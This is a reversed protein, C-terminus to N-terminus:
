ATEKELHSSKRRLLIGTQAILAALALHLVGVGTEPLETSAGLVEGDDREYSVGEVYNPSEVGETVEEFNGAKDVAVVKFDFTGEMNWEFSWFFPDDGSTNEREGYLIWDSSGTERYYLYVTQVTLNPIDTSAGEISTPILSGGLSTFESEPPTNDVIIRVDPTRAWNGALDKGAAYLYYVGDELTYTTGGWKEANLSDLNWEFVTGNDFIYHYRKSSSSYPEGEARWWFNIYDCEENCTAKLHITGLHTSGDGPEEFTIQPATNDVIFSVVHQSDDGGLYPDGSLDRNGAADRAALRLLYEGDPWDTTVWTYLNRNNFGSSLYQTDSHLRLGFNMFDVGGSYISFNYHSLQYNEFVSGFIDMTGRVYSGQVLGEFFVIPATNDATFQWAPSWASCNGLQDCARVRWWYTAEPTGPAFGSSPHRSTPELYDRQYRIPVGPNIDPNELYLRYEYRVPGNPDSVDSWDVYLGSTSLVKGDNPFLLSPTPPATNDVTVVVWDYSIGPNGSKNGAADRAELKITYVGDAVTTTDWNFFFKDTFSSADNVVGLGAVTHNGSDQIVLWYHHPNADTVTGRIAVTGNLLPSTPSTIEVFPDTTDYTISCKDTWDSYKGSADFARVRVWYTTGNVAGGGHEYNTSRTSSYIRTGEPSYVEREYGAVGVNDVSPEWLNTMPSYSLFGGCTRYNDFDTGGTYDTGIPPNESTWGIQGPVSPVTRDLTIGCWDTWGSANGNEDVARVRYKYYGDEDRIKGTFESDPPQAITVEERIQYDYHDFDAEGNDDWDVTILRQTTYNGCGLDQGSQVIHLGTPVAPPTDVGAYAPNVTLSAYPLYQVFVLILSTLLSSLKRKTRYNM